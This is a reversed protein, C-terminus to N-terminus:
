RRSSSNTREEPQTIAVAEDQGDGGRHQANVFLTGSDENVGADNDNGTGTGRGTMKFYIGTPEADCDTLSAFRVVEQALTPRGAATRDPTAVFIDDGFRKGRDFEGGPDETIFLNGSRDLALNDPSDFDNPSRSGAPANVGARVYDAVFATLHESGSEPERLDIALVRDEGTIAVYMTNAGSAGRNNGTSTAIEVDEPRNYGTAGAEAAAVDSNIQSQVPDLPVWMAEGTRDGTPEVIRLAFLEGSSLDGPREPVFRYIFGGVPNPQQGNPQGNTESIGYLNGQPDFRMGEHSRSGVAPRPVDEGTEPNIEYVLGAQAQPVRPDPAAQRQTEEAALITQKTTAGEASPDMATTGKDNWVIGDFREWTPNQALVRTANTELDTMSVQSPSPNESAAPSTEHTRFLFRGAQEGTENQTNMDWLDITGGDGERAFVTQAYGTPLVFPQEKDGGDTCPTSTPLPEFQFQGETPSGNNNGNDPRTQAQGANAAALVLAAAVGAGAAVTMSRRYRALRELWIGEM